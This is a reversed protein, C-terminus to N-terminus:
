FKSGILLPVNLLMMRIELVDKIDFGHSSPSQHRFGRLTDRYFDILPTWLMDDLSNDPAM